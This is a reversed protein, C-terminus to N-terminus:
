DRCFISEPTREARGVALTELAQQGVSGRGARGSAIV